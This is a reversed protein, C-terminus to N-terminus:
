LVNLINWTVTNRQTPGAITLAEQQDWLACRQPRFGYGYLQTTMCWPWKWFSYPMCQLWVFFHLSLIMSLANYYMRNSFLVLCIHLKCSTNRHFQLFPENEVSTCGSEDSVQFVEPAELCSSVVSGLLPESVPATMSNPGHIPTWKLTHFFGTFDVTVFLIFLIHCLFGESPPVLQFM